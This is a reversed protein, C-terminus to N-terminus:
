PGVPFDGRALGYIWQDGSHRRPDFTGAHVWITKFLDRLAAEAVSRKRHSRMLVLLLPQQHEAFLREFAEVDGEAIRRLLTTSRDMPGGEWDM